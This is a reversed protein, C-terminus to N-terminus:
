LKQLDLRYVIRCNDQRTIERLGELQNEKTQQLRVVMNGAQLTTINDAQAALEIYGGTYSGKYIRVVKKDAMANICVSNDEFTIEWQETKTDGVASGACTTETCRMTVNYLGPINPHLTALTDKIVISSTSDLRKERTSLEEERLELSQQRLSLEQEKQNLEAAKLELAKEREQTDCGPSGLLFLIFILLQFRM